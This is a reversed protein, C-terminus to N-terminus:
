SSYIEFLQIMNNNSCIRNVPTHTYIITNILFLKIWLSCMTASNLMYMWTASHMCTSRITSMSCPIKLNNKKKYHLSSFYFLVIENISRDLFFLFLFHMMNVKIRLVVVVVINSMNIHLVVFSHSVYVVSLCHCNFWGFHNKIWFPVQALYLSVLLLICFSLFYLFYYYTSWHDIIWTDDNDLFFFYTDWRSM